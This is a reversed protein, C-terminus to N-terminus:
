ALAALMLAAPRAVPTAAPAVVMEAVREDTLPVGGSVTVGAVSVDMETEGLAGVTGDPREWGKVAVPIKESPVLSSRVVWTVQVELAGATAVMEAEPTAVATAGPLLLMPAARPLTEAEVVSLPLLVVRVARVTTGGEAVM